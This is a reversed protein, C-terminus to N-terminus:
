SETGRLRALERASRGPRCEAIAIREAVSRASAAAARQAARERRAAKRVDRNCRKGGGPKCPGKPRKPGNYGEGSM